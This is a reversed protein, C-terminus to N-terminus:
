YQHCFLDIDKDEPWNYEIRLAIQRAIEIGKIDSVFGLAMDIGASVGSSTYYKGDIVWRAENVWKVKDSCSKVWEFSRKNSTACRENLLGTKALLASGTCVTIVYISNVALNKIQDIFVKNNVLDRTGLGGPIFLIDNSGTLIKDFSKTLINVNDKNNVLGGELSYYEIEFGDAKGFIEIPGFVDLTEFDSFLIVNLKM